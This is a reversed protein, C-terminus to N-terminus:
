ISFKCAIRKGEEIKKKQLNKDHLRSHYKMADYLHSYPRSTKGKGVYFISQLFRQWVDFEKLFKLFPILFKFM